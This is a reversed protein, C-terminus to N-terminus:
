KNRSELTMAATLIKRLDLINEAHNPLIEKINVERMQLEEIIKEMPRISLLQFDMLAENIKEISLRYKEILGETSEDTNASM